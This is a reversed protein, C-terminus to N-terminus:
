WLASHLSMANLSFSREPWFAVLQAGVGVGHGEALAADLQCIRRGEDHCVLVLGVACGVLAVLVAVAILLLCFRKLRVHFHHFYSISTSNDGM